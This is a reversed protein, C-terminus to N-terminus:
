SWHLFGIWWLFFEDSKRCRVRRNLARNLKNIYNALGAGRGTLAALEASVVPPGIRFGYLIEGGNTIGSAYIEPAARRRRAFLAITRFAQFKCAPRRRDSGCTGTTESMLFVVWGRYFM